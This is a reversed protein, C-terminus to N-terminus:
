NKLLMKTVVQDGCIVRFVYVGTALGTLPIPHKGSGSFVETRISEGRIGIMELKTQAGDAVGTLDLMVSSSAPNPFIRLDLVDTNLINKQPIEVSKVAPIACFQQNISIYGHFYGGESITMGPLILINQGAVVDAAGGAAVTFFSNNGAITVTQTADYCVGQEAAVTINQLDRNAPVVPIICSNCSNWNYCITVDTRDLTVARNTYQANHNTCAWSPDLVENAPTSGSVFLFEHSSSAALPLTVTYFGGGASTMETGPYNGWNSWSGFVYVPTSPPNQVQFTVQIMTPVYPGFAVDDFYYTKTGAVAGPTGFNFFVTLKKYTNSLNLAPTGTVQSAFNFTLTEWTNAVTTMAETEVYIGPNAPDEVKMRVPIGADPSYVRMIIRTYDLAFPIPSAFGGTSGGITTGAWPDAVDSKIVKCVKNSPVVLDNVISSTNGSFDVLDYNVNSNEFTVPLNLLVPGGGGFIIDDCYYTKTGAVVGTTGFNFFLSMKKYTNSFNIPTSGPAPNAFNFTLTEWANVATTIAETEVSIAGNASDEVKMRVPIGADPSYVRMTITTSGLAFPVATAFGISGGLTTGAWLVATNSKVIQLVMNSPVVLDAVISSANGGFDVLGYNIAPNDFTVPLDIVPVVAPVFTVDDFFYTKTGAVAGTTGFNFFVSLKKYTNSLNLAPTGAVQNAFNFTLTEWTNVVTTLAETECIIGPNAPDEVKLRIPIGADPSYVRMTLSTAGAAFPIATAFGGSTGGLTTGAWLEAVNSKIVQCVKNTPVVLDFVISSANGGFDVLDYNVNNNNFTVPLNLPTPGSYVFYIDDCYYTKEGALSGPTGFNFFVSMKNYTYSFNIAATGPAQNAFDFTLTEWTGATTTLVNTEVSKTPDTADEVKMKVIIGADPSYVRMTITTSGAAFPVPTAFGVAGGLTTGAWLEATSSKIIKCAMNTPVTPDSVISSINGGFDTLAYNVTADDFTVPLDLPTQAYCIVSLMMSFIASLFQKKM